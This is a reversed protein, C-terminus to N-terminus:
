DLAFAEVGRATLDFTWAPGSPGAGRVINELFWKAEAVEVVRRLEDADDFGAIPLRLSVSKTIGPTKHLHASLSALLETDTKM